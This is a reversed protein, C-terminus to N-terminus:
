YGRPLRLVGVRGQEGSAWCARRVTCDVADFSGTDFRSWTRGGDRTVDSGTPGVALATAGRGPAWDVGSRYEGPPRVATTWGRGGDRTYAAAAPATAPTRYDGGVALGHRADRFALSYIGATPGSPVPTDAVRWTRGGDATAFVRARTGGGTAFWFRGREAPRAGSRDAAVLCTGSAAFAFEGPLAAPMGATPLVQWSRGGDGTVLIRFRGDVPDSLAMGHRRDTFALCDYFARPDDNRFTEAWTRGGDATAYVRSQEGEGISLAVAHRADFAEIDRFQLDQTGPPDVRLWSHGGDVTRLVTGGTGAVWAVRDSVADLGRLQATVGTESLRWAPPGTHGSGTAALGTTTALVVLGLVAPSITRLLSM